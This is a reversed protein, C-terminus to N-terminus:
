GIIIVKETCGLDTSYVKTPENLFDHLSTAIYKHSINGM